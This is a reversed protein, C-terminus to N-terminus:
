PCALNAGGPQNHIGDADAGDQTKVILGSANLYLGRAYLLTKDPECVTVLGTGGGVLFGQSTFSFAKATSRVSYKTPKEMVSIVVDATDVAGLTEADEFVLWGASWDLTDTCNVGDNSACITVAKNRSAAETRATSLASALNSQISEVNNKKILSDFAPVAISMLIAAIILAVMLEILTFGRNQHLRETRVRM